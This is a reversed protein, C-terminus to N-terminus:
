PLLPPSPIRMPPSIFPLIHTQSSSISINGPIPVFCQLSPDSWLDKDDVPQKPPQYYESTVLALIALVVIKVRTNMLCASMVYDLLRSVLNMKHSLSTHAEM